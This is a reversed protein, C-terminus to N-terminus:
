WTSAEEARKRAPKLVWLVAGMALGWGWWPISDWRWSPAPKGDPMLSIFRYDGGDAPPPAQTRAKRQEALERLERQDAEVCRQYEVSTLSRGTQWRLRTANPVFGNPYAQGAATPPVALVLALPWVVFRCRAEVWGVARGGWWALGRGLPEPLLALMGFYLRSM